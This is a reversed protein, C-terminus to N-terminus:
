LDFTNKHRMDSKIQSYPPLLAPPKINDGILRMIILILGFIQRFTDRESPFKKWM